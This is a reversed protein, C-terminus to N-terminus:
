KREPNKKHMEKLVTAKGHNWEGCPATCQVPPHVFFKGEQANMETPQPGSTGLLEEPTQETGDGELSRQVNKCHDSGCWSAGPLIESGQVCRPAPQFKSDVGWCSM